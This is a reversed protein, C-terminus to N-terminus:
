VMFWAVVAVVVITSAVVGRGIYSSGGVSAGGDGGMINQKSRM